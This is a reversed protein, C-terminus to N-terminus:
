DPDCGPQDNPGITLESLRDLLEQLTYRTTVTEGDPEPLLAQVTGLGGPPAKAAEM